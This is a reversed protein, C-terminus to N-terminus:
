AKVVRRHAREQHLTTLMEVPSGPARAPPDYQRGGYRFQPTGTDQEDYADVLQQLATGFFDTDLDQVQWDKAKPWPGEAARGQPDIRRRVAEVTQSSTVDGLCPPVARAGLLDHPGAPPPLGLRHVDVVPLEVRGGAVADHTQTQSRTPRSIAAM